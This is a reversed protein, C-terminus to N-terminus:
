GDLGKPQPTIQQVVDGFSNPLLGARDLAAGVTLGLVFVLNERSGIRNGSFSVVNLMDESVTVVEGNPCRFTAADSGLQSVDFGTKTVFDQIVDALAAPDTLSKPEGEHKPM